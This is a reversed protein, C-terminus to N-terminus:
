RRRRVPLLHLGLSDQYGAESLHDVALGVAPVRGVQLALDSSAQFPILLTDPCESKTPVVLQGGAPIIIPHGERPAIRLVSPCCSPIGAAWSVLHVFLYPGNWRDVQVLAIGSGGFLWESPSQTHRASMATLVRQHAGTETLSRGDITLEWRPASVQAEPLTLEGRNGIVAFSGACAGGEADPWGGWAIVQTGPQPLADQWTSGFGVRLVISSDPVSGALVKGVKLRFAPHGTMGSPAETLTGEVVFGARLLYDTFDMQTPASSRRSRLSARAVTPGGRGAGMVALGAMDSAVLALSMLGVVSVARWQLM